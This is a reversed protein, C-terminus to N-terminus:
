ANMSAGEVNTSSTFRSARYRTLSGADRYGTTNTLPSADRSPPHTRVQRERWRTSIQKLRVVHPEALVGPYGSLNRSLMQSMLV